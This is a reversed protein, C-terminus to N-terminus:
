YNHVIDALTAVTAPDLPATPSATATSHVEIAGLDLFTRVNQPRVGSGPMVLPGHDQLALLERILEVGQPATQRQGSTLLRRAGTAAVDAYSATTSRASDFARHFTVAVESNIGHAIDVLETTRTIDISSDTRLIGLVVGPFGLECIVAIDRRMAAFEDPGFVFDGGRPRVMPFVPITLASIARELVGISATTGGEPRGACLEIRDAGCNQAIRADEVGYCCIELLRGM